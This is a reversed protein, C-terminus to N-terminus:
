WVSVYLGVGWGACLHDSPSAEITNQESIPSYLRIGFRVVRPYFVHIAGAFRDVVLSLLRCVPTNSGHEQVGEGCARLLRFCAQKDVTFPIFYCIIDLGHRTEWNDSRIIVPLGATYHQQLIAPRNVHDAPRVVRVILRARQQLHNFVM